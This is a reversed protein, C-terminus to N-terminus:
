ELNSKNMDQLIIQARDFRVQGEQILREVVGNIQDGEAGVAIAVQRAHLRM